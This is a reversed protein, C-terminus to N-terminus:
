NKLKRYIFLLLMAGLISIILSGINFGTVTGLGFFASIYGGVLAGAIGLIVTMFFGGGDKGPMFWKALIGVILGLIIWSIIGM